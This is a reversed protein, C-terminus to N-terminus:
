LEPALLRAVQEIGWLERDPGSRETCEGILGDVFSRIQGIASPSYVFLANEYNLFLSRMDFNPSGVYAFADDVVMAKAHVMGSPYYHVVVGAAVLERILARRAYDAIRHNSRTPVVVETRVGRRAALVLAHQLTDDPVYYPTVLAVRERAGFIGMLFADYVTDTTMDPGSPVVQVLEDGRQKTPRADNRREGGCFVWDSEFLDIADTAVPGSVVAAVDRWRPSNPNPLGMYEDALNMGGAFVHAQDVVALKRHSRLNTRGRIPSHSLPMFSRVEGGAAGLVTAAHGRSRTSGVADLIMRVKVGQAARKALADVVADGTADRGLIFMTVDISRTAGQILELLRVYAAEGTTILEFTNGARAPAVGSRRLSYAISSEGPTPEVVPPAESRTPRKARRPFKRQGLLLYLPIAVFPVFVLALLWAFMSQPTRRSEFLRVLMVLSALLAGVTLAHSYVYQAVM